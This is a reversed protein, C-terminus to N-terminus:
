TLARDERFSRASLQDRDFFFQDMGMGLHNRCYHRGAVGAAAPAKEIMDTTLFETQKGPLAPMKGASFQQGKQLSSAQAGQPSEHKAGSLSDSM